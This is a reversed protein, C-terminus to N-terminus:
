DCRHSRYNGKIEHNYFQGVSSSSQLAQWTEAEVGEYQYVVGNNFELQLLNHEPDYGISNTMSSEVSKVVSPSRAAPLYAPERAASLHCTEAALIDNLHQLGEYAEVPAPIEICEISDGQDILVELYDHNHGVAIINSLDIKSYNM